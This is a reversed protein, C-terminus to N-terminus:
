AVCCLAPHHLDCAGLLPLTTLNLVQEKLFTGKREVWV